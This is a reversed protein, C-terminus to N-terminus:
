PPANVADFLLYQQLSPPLQSVWSPPCVRRIAMYAVCDAAVNAKRSTWASSHNSFSAALLHIDSLIPIVSWHAIKNPHCQKQLRKFPNMFM